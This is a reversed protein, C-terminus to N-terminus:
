IDWSIELVDDRGYTGYCLYIEEKPNTKSDTREGFDLDRLYIDNSGNGSFVINQKLEVENSVLDPIDSFLGEGTLKSYAERHTWVRFFGEKGYKKVYEKENDNFFRNSIKLFDRKDLIQIDIGCPAEGVMVITFDGTHSLNFYVPLDIYPKGKEGRKIDIGDLIGTDEDKYELYKKLSSLIAKKSELGEYIYGKFKM